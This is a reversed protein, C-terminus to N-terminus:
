TAQRRFWDITQTLGEDLTTEPQWNIYRSTTELDAQRVQEFPRDSMSGFSPARSVGLLRFISHVVERVTVLQGSGIDVIHGLARPSIALHLLGNVVDDVYIWDVPRTGASLQPSQGTILSRIVYPILRRENQPGPGYVMFVRGVAVPLEFLQHYM